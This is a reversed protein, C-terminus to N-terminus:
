EKRFFNDGTANRRSMKDRHKEKEVNCLDMEMKNKDLSIEFQM